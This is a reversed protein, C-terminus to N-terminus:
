DADLYSQMLVTVDTDAQRVFTLCASGNAPIVLLGASGSTTSTAVREIDMGTGAALTITSAATGTANYICVEQRDGTAPIMSTLTSTAPLTLTKTAAAGGPTYLLTDYSLLDSELLTATSVSSSAVSYSKLLGADLTLLGSIGVTSAFTSASGSTIAGDVNGSGDIVTTGDVLYGDTVDLTSFNTVGGLSLSPQEGGGLFLGGLGVLLALVSVVWLAKNQM